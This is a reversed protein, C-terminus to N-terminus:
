WKPAEEVQYASGCAPCTVFLAGEKLKVSDADLSHACNRCKLNELSIDGSLNLNQHITIKQDPVKMRMAYIVFGGGGLLIGGLVWRGVIGTSAAAACFLVGLAIILGGFIMGVLKM